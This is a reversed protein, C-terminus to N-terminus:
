TAQVHLCRSTFTPVDLPPPFCHCGVGLSSGLIRHALAMGTAQSPEPEQWFRGEPQISIIIIYPSPKWPGKLAPIKNIPMQYKQVPSRGTALDKHVCPLVFVYCVCACAQAGFLTGFILSILDPFTFNSKCQSMSNSFTFHPSRIFSPLTTNTLHAKFFISVLRCIPNIHNPIFTTPQSNHECQHIKQTDHFATVMQAFLQIEPHVTRTPTVNPHQQM